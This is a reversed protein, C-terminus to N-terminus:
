NFTLDKIRNPLYEDKHADYLRQLEDLYLQHYKMVDDITPNQIHPCDIPRGVVSVVPRRLPLIGVTYNFIGRGFIAPLFIKTAKKGAEQLKRLTSGPPNAVQNWLDNDGFGFVPVLSAGNRLAMRVFGLRKKILLDNTGPHANGTEQAGGPVIMVSHGPGQTLITEIGERSVSSMGLALIIDRLIPIYFNTRLTLLRIYIGPLLQSVANAESCFNIIGGIVIVGHPHYGFIYNRQPDLEVTKKLQVPFFDRLAKFFYLNKFWSIGKGGEDPSTDLYLYICYASVLPFLSEFTAIYFFLFTLLPICMFLTVATTQIRRELPVNLPAFEIKQM